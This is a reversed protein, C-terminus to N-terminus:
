ERWEAHGRRNPRTVRNEILELFTSLSFSDDSFGFKGSWILQEQCNTKLVTVTIRLGDAIGRAEDGLLGDLKV